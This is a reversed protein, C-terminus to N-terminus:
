SSWRSGILDQWHQRVGRDRWTGRVPISMREFDAVIFTIHSVDEIKV